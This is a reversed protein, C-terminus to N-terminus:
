CHLLTAIAITIANQSLKGSIIWGLTPLNDSLAIKGNQIFDFYYEAVLLIDIEGPQKFYPDALHLNPIKRTSIDFQKYPQVSLISPLVFANLNTSLENKRSVLQM